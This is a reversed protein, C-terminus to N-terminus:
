EQSYPCKTKIHWLPEYLKHFVRGVAGQFMILNPNSKPDGGKLIHTTAIGSKMNVSAM